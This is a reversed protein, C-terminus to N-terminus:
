EFMIYMYLLFVFDIHENQGSNDFLFLYEKIFFSDINKNMMIKAVTIIIRNTM